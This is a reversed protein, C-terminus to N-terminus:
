GPGAQRTVAGIRAALEGAVRATEDIPVYDWKELRGRFTRTIGQTELAAHFRRIKPSLGSVQAVHVPKGTSTAESVMNVSDATVVFADALGLMGFYPNDGRGDWLWYIRGALAAKVEEILKAPTRRSPTIMLSAGARAMELLNDGLQAGDGPAWQASDSPGGLLVAVRPRPLLALRQHWSKAEEALRKQSLRNMSGLVRIVNPGELRDHDPVVVLDFAEVPMQPDLIQVAFIRPEIKKMAAVVPGSRRGTGVVVDPWPRPLAGAGGRLGLFPWGGEWAGPLAWLRPPMWAFARLLEIRHREVRVPRVRAFAELLGVAQTENGARGDTVAWATIESAGARGSPTEMQQARM